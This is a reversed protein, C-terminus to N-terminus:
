SDIACIDSQAAIFAGRMRPLVKASIGLSNYSMAVFGSIMATLTLRQQRTDGIM